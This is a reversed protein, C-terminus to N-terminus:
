LAPSVSGSSFALRRQHHALPSTSPFVVAGLRGNGLPLAKNWNTAPQRYWLCLPAEPAAANIASEAPQSPAPSEAASLSTCAALLRTALFSPAPKSKMPVHPDPHETDHPSSESPPTQGPQQNLTRVEPKIDLLGKITGHSKPSQALVTALNMTEDSIVAQGPTHRDYEDFGENRTRTVEIQNVRIVSNSTLIRRGSLPGSATLRSEAAQAPLVQGIPGPLCASRATLGATKLFTRRKMTFITDLHM